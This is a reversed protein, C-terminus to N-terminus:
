SSKAKIQEVAEELKTCVLLLDKREVEDIPDNTKLKEIPSKAVSNLKMIFELSHCVQFSSWRFMIEPDRKKFSRFFIRARRLVKYIIDKM